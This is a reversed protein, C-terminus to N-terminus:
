VPVIKPKQQITYRKSCKVVFVLLPLFKNVRSWKILSSVMTKLQHLLNTFPLLVVTCVSEPLVSSSHAHKTFIDSVTARNYHLDSNCNAVPDKEQVIILTCVNVCCYCTCTQAM